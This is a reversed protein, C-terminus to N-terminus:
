SSINLISRFLFPSLCFCLSLRVHNKHSFHMAFFTYYVVANFIRQMVVFLFQHPTKLWYNTFSTKIRFNKLIVILLTLLVLQFKFHLRLYANFLAKGASHKSCYIVCICYLFWVPNYLHFHQSDIQFNYLIYQWYNKFYFIKNAIFSKILAM